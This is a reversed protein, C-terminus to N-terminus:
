QSRYARSCMANHCPWAANIAFTNVRQDHIERYTTRENIKNKFIQNNKLKSDFKPVLHKFTDTNSTKSAVVDQIPNM